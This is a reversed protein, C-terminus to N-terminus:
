IGGHHSCAGQRGGSHSIWGDACAVTYGNYQPGGGADFVYPTAVAPLHPSVPPAAPRLACQVASTVLLAAVGLGLWWKWGPSAKTRAVTPPIPRPIPPRVVQETPSPPVLTPRRKRAKRPSPSSSCARRGSMSVTGRCSPYGPCGWFEGYRGRRRVMSRGCRPCAIM